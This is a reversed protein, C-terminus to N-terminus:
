VIGILASLTNSTQCKLLHHRGLCMASTAWSEDWYEFYGSLKHKRLFVILIVTGVIALTHRVFAWKFFLFFSFSPLFSFVCMRWWADSSHLRDFVCMKMARRLNTVGILNKICSMKSTIGYAHNDTQTRINYIFLASKIISCPLTTYFCSSKFADPDCHRSRLGQPSSSFSFSLSLQLMLQISKSLDTRWILFFGTVWLGEAGSVTCQMVTEGASPSFVGTNKLRTPARPSVRFLCNLIPLIALLFHQHPLRMSMKNLNSCRYNDCGSMGPAICLEYLSLLLPCSNWSPSLTQQQRNLSFCAVNNKLFTLHSQSCRNMRQFLMRSKRLTWRHM